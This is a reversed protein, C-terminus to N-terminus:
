RYGILQNSSRSGYVSIALDMPFFMDFFDRNDWVWDIIEYIDNRTLSYEKHLFTKCWLTCYKKDNMNDIFRKFSVLQCDKKLNTVKERKTGALYKFQLIFHEKSKTLDVMNKDYKTDDIFFSFSGLINIDQNKLIHKIRKNKTEILFQKVRKNNENKWLEIKENKLKDLVQDLESKLKDIHKKGNPIKNLLDKSLGYFIVIKEVYEKDQYGKKMINFDVIKESPFLDLSELNQLKLGINYTSESIKYKINKHKSGISKLVNIKKLETLFHNLTEKTNICGKVIRKSQYLSKLELGFFDKMRDINNNLEPKNKEKKFKDPNIAYFIYIPRLGNNKFKIVLNLISKTQDKIFMNQLSVKTKM